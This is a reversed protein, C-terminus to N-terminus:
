RDHARQEDRHQRADGGLQLGHQREDVVIRGAAPDGHRQRRLDEVSQQDNNEQNEFRSAQESDPYPYAVVPLCPREGISGAPFSRPMVRLRITAARATGIANVMIIVAHRAFSDVAGCVPLSPALTSKPTVLSGQLSATSLVLPQM